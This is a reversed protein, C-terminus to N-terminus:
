ADYASSYSSTFNTSNLAYKLSFTITPSTRNCITFSYVSGYGTGTSNIAYAKIYYTMGPVLSTTSFSGSFSGTGSGLSTNICGSGGITPNTNSASYVVGKSTVTSGGGNTINGGLVTYYIDTVVSTSYVDYPESTTVIPTGLTTFSYQIGLSTGESNTAYARYYYTTNASLSTLSSTYSGTGTGDSTIGQYNGMNLSSSTSWTVGRATISAGGDDTINGGSSASNTTISSATTTTVSPISITNTKFSVQSGYSTGASNTAYARVYYTQDDSLGTLSSTFSGTGSGDTTKSNSITPTGTTNWCVGRATVTAGGDSTVNGGGTATAYSINTISATSVSPPSASTFTFPSDFFEYTSECNTEAYTGFYYTGSPMTIVTSESGESSSQFVKNSHDSYSGSTNYYIYRLTISNTPCYNDVYTTVTISTNTKDTFNLSTIDLDCLTTFTVQQGYATGAENTAYARVYYTEGCDLSTLSSAFSGVGTGNNTKGIYSSVTPIGTTNWVIGRGSITGGGANTVNGGGTATNFSISSITTTTVTPLGVGSTTTFSVQNGYSTGCINTVYTRFYYTTGSSLTQCRVIFGGADGVYPTAYSNSLTPNGSTNWCVGYETVTSGGDDTVVGGVDIYTDSIGNATEATSVTALVPLTISQVESYSYLNGTPNGINSEVYARYYVTTGSEAYITAGYQSFNVKKDNSFILSTNGNEITPETYIDSFVYFLDKLLAGGNSIYNVYFTFNDCNIEHADDISITPAKYSYSGFFGQSLSQLSCFLISIFLLYRM